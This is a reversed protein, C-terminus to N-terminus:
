WACMLGRRPRLQQIRFYSITIATKRVVRGKFMLPSKCMRWSRARARCTRGQYPSPINKLWTMLWEFLIKFQSYTTIPQKLEAGDRAFATKIRWTPSVRTEDQKDKELKCGREAPQGAAMVPSWLLAAVAAVIFGVHKMLIWGTVHHCLSCGEIESGAHLQSSWYM